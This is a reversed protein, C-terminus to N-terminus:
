KRLEFVNTHVIFVGFFAKNMDTVFITDGVINDMTAGYQVM